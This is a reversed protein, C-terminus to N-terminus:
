FAINYGISFAIPLLGNKIDINPDNEIEDYNDKFKQSRIPVFLGVSLKNGKTGFKFDLNGGVTVGYSTMDYGSAGEVKIVGNYGYFVMLNPSVQKDPIMKYTTGVNSLTM